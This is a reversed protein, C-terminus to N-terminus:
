RKELGGGAEAGSTHNGVGRPLVHWSFGGEAAMDVVFETLVYNRSLL